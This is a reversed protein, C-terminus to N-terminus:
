LDGRSKKLEELRKGAIGYTIIIDGTANAGSNNVIEISSFDIGDDPSIVFRGSNSFLPYVEDSSKNLRVEVDKDSKNWAVLHNGVLRNIEYQESETFGVFHVSNNKPNSVTKNFINRAM